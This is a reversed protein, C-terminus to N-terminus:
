FRSDFPLRSNTFKEDFLVIEEDEMDEITKVNFFKNWLRIIENDSVSWFYNDDYKKLSNDQLGIILSKFDVCLFTLNEKEEISFIHNNIVFNIDTFWKDEIATNISIFINEKKGIEKFRM